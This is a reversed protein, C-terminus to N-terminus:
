LEVTGVPANVKGRKPRKAESQVRDAAVAAVAAPEAAEIEKPQRKSRKAELPVQNAAVEAPEAAEIANEAAPPSLQDANGTVDPFVQM